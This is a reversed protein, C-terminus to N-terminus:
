KNMAFEPLTGTLSGLFEVISAIETESLDRGNQTKAMIKVAESLDSVSGDHFYPYTKEINRLSPVKFFYKESENKTIVARGEDINKSGTFEWYPGNILGFKQYMGGGLGPGIHCTICGANIFNQLGARQGETLAGIDGNLYADFPAPTALTHEFEAIAMAVNNFTIPDAENPFAQQFLPLYEKLEDMVVKVSQEHPMGMEVPNLIPGKAQEFLDAARGDWFQAIHFYANYVTPSNRDGRIGEHGPSTAENDVGFKDLLHCSNCSLKGNISLAPEYYLKKGLQAIPREFSKAEPLPKFFNTAMSQLKVDAESYAVPTEQSTSSNQCGQLILLSLVAPTFSKFVKIFMKIKKDTISETNM